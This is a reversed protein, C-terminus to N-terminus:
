CAPVNKQADCTKGELRPYPLCVEARHQLVEIRRVAKCEIANTM